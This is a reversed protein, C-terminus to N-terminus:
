VEAKYFMNMIKKIYAEEVNSVGIPKLIYDPDPDHTLYEQSVKFKLYSKCNSDPLDSNCKNDEFLLKAKEALNLFPKDIKLNEGLCLSGNEYINNYTPKYVKLNKDIWYFVTNIKSVVIEGFSNNNLILGYINEPFITNVTHTEIDFNEFDQFVHEFDDSFRLSTKIQLSKFVYFDIISNNTYDIIHGRSNDFDYSHYAIGLDKLFKLLVTKQNIYNKNTTKYYFNNNKPDYYIEREM